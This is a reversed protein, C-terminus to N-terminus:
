CFQWAGRLSPSGSEGQGDVHERHPVREFCTTGASQASWVQRAQGIADRTLEERKKDEEKKAKVQGRGDDRYYTAMAELWLRAEEQISTGRM